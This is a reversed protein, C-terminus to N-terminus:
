EDARSIAGLPRVWKPTKFPGFRSELVLLFYGMASQCFLLFVPLPTSSLVSKNLLTMSIAVVMYFVVTGLQGFTLAKGSMAERIRPHFALSSLHSVVALQSHSEAAPPM